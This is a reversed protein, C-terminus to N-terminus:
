NSALEKARDLVIKRGRDTFYATMELFWIMAEAGYENCAAQWAADGGNENWKDFKSPLEGFEDKLDEISRIGVKCFNQLRQLIWMEGKTTAFQKTWECGNSNLLESYNRKPENTEDHKKESPHQKKYQKAVQGYLQSPLFMQIRGDSLRRVNSYKVALEKLEQSPKLQSKCTLYNDGCLLVPPLDHSMICVQYVVIGFFCM